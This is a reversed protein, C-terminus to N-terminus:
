HTEKEENVIAQVGECFLGERFAAWIAWHDPALAQDIWVYWERAEYQCTAIYGTHTSDFRVGTVVYHIKAIRSCEEGVGYIRNVDDVTDALLSGALALLWALVLLLLIFRCSM